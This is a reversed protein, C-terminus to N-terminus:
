KYDEMDDHYEELKYTPLAEDLEKNKFWYNVFPAVVFVIALAVVVLVIWFTLEENTPITMM